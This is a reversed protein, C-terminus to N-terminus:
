HEVRLRVRAPITEPARDEQGLGQLVESAGGGVAHEVVRADDDSVAGSLIGHRSGFHCGEGLAKAKSEQSVLETILIARSTDLAGEVVDLVVEVWVTLELVNWVEITLKTLPAVLDVGLM